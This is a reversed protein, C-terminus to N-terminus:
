LRIRPNIKSPDLASASDGGAPSLIVASIAERNVFHFLLGFANQDGKKDDM